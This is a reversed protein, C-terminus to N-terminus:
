SNTVAKKDGGHGKDEERIDSAEGSSIAKLLVKFILYTWYLHLVFLLGLLTVFISYHPEPEINYPIAILTIPEYLASKIIVLPFYLLRCLIWVITFTVFLINAASKVGAYNALKALELFIDCVDHCLMVMLGMRVFNLYYSYYMLGLTAIHHVLSGLWDERRTEHWLLFPIAQIYFGIEVCYFLLSGKSVYLDCPLQTCGDWMYKTDYFWPEQYSVALALSTVVIYVVTKWSSENWKKMVEELSGEGEKKKHKGTLIYIGLPKFVYKVLVGRCFAIVFSFGLPIVLIDLWRSGLLWDARQDGPVGSM